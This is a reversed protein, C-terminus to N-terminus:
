DRGQDPLRVEPPALSPDRLIAEAIEAMSAAQRMAENAGAVGARLLKIEAVLSASAGSAAKAREDLLESVIERVRVEQEQTFAPMM